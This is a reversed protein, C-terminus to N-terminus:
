LEIEAHTHNDETSVMTINHWGDVSLAADFAQVRDRLREDTVESNQSQEQAQSLVLETIVPYPVAVDVVLRGDEDREEMDSGSDFDSGLVDKKFDQFEDALNGYDDLLLNHTAQLQRYQAKYDTAGDSSSSDDHASLDVQTEDDIFSDADDYEENFQHDEADQSDYASSDDDLYIGVIIRRAPSNIIEGSYETTAIGPRLGTDEPDLVELYPNAELGERCCGREVGTCFGDSTWVEYGCFRCRVVQDDYDFFTYTEDLQAPNDDIDFIEPGDHDITVSNSPHESNHQGGDQDSDEESGPTFTRRRINTNQSTKDSLEDSDGLPSSSLGDVQLRARKLDREGLGDLIAKRRLSQSESGPSVASLHLPPTAKQVIAPVIPVENGLPDFPRLFGQSNRRVTVAPIPGAPFSAVSKGKNLVPSASQSSHASAETTRSQQSRVDTSREAVIM